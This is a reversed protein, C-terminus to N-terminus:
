PPAILLILNAFSQDSLRRIIKDVRRKHRVGDMFGSPQYQTFRVNLQLLPHLQAHTQLFSVISDAESDSGCNMVMLTSTEAKEFHVHTEWLFKLSRTKSKDPSAFVGLLHQCSGSLDEIVTPLSDDIDLIVLVDVKRGIHGGNARQETNVM